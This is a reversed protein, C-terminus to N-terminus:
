TPVERRDEITALAVIMPAEMLVLGLLLGCGVGFLYAGLSPAAPRVAVIAALLLLTMNRGLLVMRESDASASVSRWCGCGSTQRGRGAVATLFVVFVGIAPLAAVRGVWPQALLLGAALLEVTVVPPLAANGLRALPPVARAFAAIFDSPNRLKWGVSLVLPRVGQGIPQREAARRLDEYGRSASASALPPGGEVEHSSISATAASSSGRKAAIEPRRAAPVPRRKSSHTASFCRSTSRM